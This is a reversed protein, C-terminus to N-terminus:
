HGFHVFPVWTLLSSESDGLIQRMEQTADHLAQAAGDSSLRKSDTEDEAKPILLNKYFAEALKPGYSDKISWMTAVVGQYGAALMGGALHVAEESLKEDGTSTQCASLFALDAGALNKRIISSLDLRGDYLYFGSQLPNTTDQAAHCALHICSFVDMEDNVRSVTADGSELCLHKIKFKSLLQQIMQVEQTTGPIPHLKPTDPQSIMLLGVKEQNINHSNHTKKILSSVNPIYSSVAFDSLKNCIGATSGSLKYIGAAHIPLFALPGTVCWWIRPLNSLPKSYGLGNLIPKVVSSWLQQLIDTIGGEKCRRSGRSSVTDWDEQMWVRSDHLIVKLDHHLKDAIRITFQPLVIHLPNKKGSTLILADSHNGYSNIVVVHGSKPLDKLLTSCSPPLLFHTFQPKSRVTTLLQEWEQALKIHTHAENQISIKTLLSIDETYINLEARSGASELDKSVQVIKDALARDYAYLDDVPTRLDNIQRWVLCRGQELWELAMSHQGFSIAAAAACTSLLSINILKTFRSKITQDLDAVQSILCIATNYAELLQSQDIQMTSKAWHIAAYLKVSPSGSLSTSALRFNLIASHADIADKTHEFRKELSNGLHYLKTPLSAHGESTLQISKQLLSIAESIDAVNGTHEFHKGLSLALNHLQTPLNAHGESTLQICKQLLSIAESIDAVNGTHEFHKGLSLGLNHLQTPLNAHDDSTLQISKQLLSIAESIDAVNGTHEFHKGLSLALNHLQTPLNAHGES